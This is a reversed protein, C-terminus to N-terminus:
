KYLLEKGIKFKRTFTAIKIYKIDDIMSDFVSNIHNYSEM